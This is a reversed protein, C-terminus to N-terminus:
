VHYSDIHHDIDTRHVVAGVIQSLAWPGGVTLDTM